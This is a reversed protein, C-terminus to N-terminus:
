NSANITLFKLLVFNKRGQYEREEAIAHLEDGQSLKRGEEVLDGFCMIAVGVEYPYEVGSITKVRNENIIFRIYPMGDSGTKEVSSQITAKVVKDTAFAPAVFLACILLVILLRKM